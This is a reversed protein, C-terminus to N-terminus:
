RFLSLPWPIGRRREDVIGDLEEQMGGTIREYIAEVIREDGAASAPYEAALDIPEGVQVTVKVPLPITPLGVTVGWPLGVVVPAIKLGMARVHPMFPLLREGRSLVLISDQVGHTVVPVIPVRTRLALRIFGKRGAFSIRNREPWPRFCEHDGGPYVLVIGGDSLVAEAADWGAELAGFKTLPGRVGPLAIFTSHFLGYVPEEVGRERWWHTMLIPMDPPTAGGSHNGVVLFPGSAPLNDFGRVDPRYYSAYLELLRQYKRIADPDRGAGPHGEARLASPEPRMAGRNMEVVEGM